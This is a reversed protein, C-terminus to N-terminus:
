PAAYIWRGWAERPPEFVIAGNEVKCPIAIGRSGPTPGEAFLQTTAPAEPAPIRVPGNGDARIQLIAGGPVRREPAVPGWCVTGRGSDSFRTTKGDVTIQNSHHGQFAILNGRPDLRFALSKVGEYDITHGNARFGKLRLTDPPLPNKEIWAKDKERDRGFGGPWGEVIDRYHRTIALAGNPFRCVLLDGARSLAETNDNADPFKGTPPYAGLADLVDFWNRDDTGLSRSQNDRPRYGLFTAGGGNATPRHTGIVNGNCRAAPGTGERPTVPYIRDVLFHTLIAQPPVGALKGEFAVQAGPAMLGEDPGPAYDAGFLNAWGPLADGGEATVVPPPGSWIVRGGADALERMLALLRESPFPEFTAALTTFRRGALEIAGDAVKGRELLMAQTIWNAYAYQTMWSGFRDDAAVLDIPYLMLVSVDRHQLGTVPAAHDMAGATGFARGALRHREIVEAPAGWCAAYSLPTDNLIGTSCALALGWYNRDLWGGEAHDNGNGTLFDGWKFYDYCASAAQHVTASWLFNPTYEYKATVAGGRGTEWYDVTPSEAWTAHARAELRHGMRAEAHRKAGAFLDVVGDQLLRYYRARFLATERIARPTPGFVHMANSRATLDSAADEQGACFYVLWKALDAYREGYLSAFKAALGPSVYRMAFQGHEHHNHYAWSQQIHMEDAYLGNLRIGARAYRDVLDRLFPAAKPSFYDMEPTRYQQVVLVRDLPGVDTRGAGSVRARVSLHDGHQRIIGEHVETRAVDTIERIGNPDVARYPTGAVPAERFAFVRVGADEVDLPGKNNAWRRDRWLDVGFAGTKPDRLGKRFQMWLGSEGTAARYGPGIELPSLVSLELGLGYKEAFRGVASIRQIYADTDPMHRRPTDQGPRYQRFFHDFFVKLTRHGAKQARECIQRLSAERKELTVSLDLVRDPDALMELEQDTVLVIASQGLGLGWPGPFAVLDGRYVSEQVPVPTAPAAQAASPSAIHIAILCAIVIRM